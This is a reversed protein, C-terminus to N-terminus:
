RTEKLRRIAEEAAEAVEPREDTKQIKLARIVHSDDMDMNGLAKAAAWRVQWVKDCKLAEILPMCNEKNVEGIAGVAFVAGKRVYADKDQLLKMLQPLAKKADKGLRGLVDACGYRILRNEHGLGKIVEDLVDTGLKALTDAAHWRVRSGPDGLTEVLASAAAKAGAGVQSLGWASAMRTNLEKEDKLGKILVPIAGAAAEGMKGIAEAALCRARGSPADIAGMYVALYEKGKPNISNLASIVSAQVGPDKDSTIALLAEAYKKDKPAMFSLAQAACARVWPTKHSLAELLHPLAPEGIHVLATVITRTVVTNMGLDRKRRVETFDDILNLLAPVAEAAEPGMSGLAKVAYGAKKTMRKGKFANNFTKILSSVDQREKPRRWGRLTLKSVDPVPPPVLAEGSKREQEAQAIAEAILIDACENIYFEIFTYGKHRDGKSAGAPVIKNGDSPDKPNLGHAKEWEDPMGDNDSDPKPKGPKLGEMLGGEPELRGWSGTGTRVERVTRRGVADRPLCGAHALVLDYAQEATQTTVKPAPWPESLQSKEEVYGGRQSFYNGDFYGKTKKTSFGFRPLACRSAPKGYKEVLPGNKLHPCAPGAKYYNGIANVRAPSGKAATRMNYVVNNRYDLDLGKRGGSVLPARLRHHAFLNHHLTTPKDIYGILMAYNHLLGYYMCGEWQIESEEIACWQVTIDSCKSPSFTEDTGWCVSFHDVIVRESQSARSEGSPPRSRLFRVIVDRSNEIYFNGALTIGAGPATQGAITINSTGRISVSGPIVGSVDFVVIRPGKQGCAWKLSGQGEPNLNTVKIVKGGRGGKSIAGLGEASPFASLIPAKEESKPVPEVARAAPGPVLLLGALFVCAIEFMKKM